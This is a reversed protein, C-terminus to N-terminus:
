ATEHVPGRAALAVCVVALPLEAGLAMALATVREMVTVATTTDLWADLALLTGTATATLAYSRHGRLALVGTTILGLAEFADLGLWATRGYGCTATAPLRGALVVTWPLLVAGCGILAHELRYRYRRRPRLDGPEGARDPGPRATLERM